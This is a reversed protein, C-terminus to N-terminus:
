ARELLRHSLNESVTETSHTSRYWDITRAVGERFDVLPSWGLLERARSNSAVRNVPGVPMDPLFRFQPEHDFAACILKAAEVVTVREETGLNIATADNIKEAALITGRVVDDVYTWNRVQRGDGWIEFPDQKLYARGMMAHVAHGESGRPGYVTFYRCIAAPMGRDQCYARLTLEAMLKAWGYLNDADYPPTVSTERLFVEKEPDSQLDMPYVCGSSAFVFKEIGQESAALMVAGDLVFNTACASQHTEIYGRGGHVAALHFVVEM